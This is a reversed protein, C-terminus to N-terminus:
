GTKKGGTFYEKIFLPHGPGLSGGGGASFSLRSHRPPCRKAAYFSRWERRQGPLGPVPCLRCHYRHVAAQERAQGGVRAVRATRRGGRSPGELPLQRLERGARGM